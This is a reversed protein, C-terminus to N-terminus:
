RRITVARADVLGPARLRLYYVGAPVPGGAGRGDWTLVSEGADFTRDAITAVHRGRVDVVDSRVAAAATLAFRFSAGRASPNPWPGATFGIAPRAPTPEVGVAGQVMVVGRMGFGVHPECFFPVTEPEAFTFIFEDNQSDSPQDFIMGANPDALGTGSTITHFGSVWQWRVSQGAQIRVTDVATAASGDADFRTGSVTYTAEVGGASGATSPVRVHHRWYEAVARAMEADSMGAQAGAHHTAHSHTSDGRVGPGPTLAAAAAAAALLLLSPRIWSARM